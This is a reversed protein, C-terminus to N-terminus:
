AYTEVEVKPVPRDLIWKSEPRSRLYDICNLWKSQLDISDPYLEKAVDELTKNFYVKFKNKEM